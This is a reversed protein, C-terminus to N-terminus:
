IREGCEPCRPESIGRLIYGCKRCRTEELSQDSSFLRGLGVFVGITIVGAIATYLLGKLLDDPHPMPYFFYTFLSCRWTTTSGVWVLPAYYFGWCVLIAITARWLWHM